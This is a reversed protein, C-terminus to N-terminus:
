IINEPAITARFNELTARTYSLDRRSNISEFQRYLITDGIIDRLLLGAPNNPDLFLIQEVVQMAEEYRLDRQLQRVRELAESIQRQRAEEATRQAEQQARQLAQNRVEQDRVRQAEFAADLRVQLDDLRRNFSEITPQDLVGRARNVTLQAQALLRQAGQLDGSGIA